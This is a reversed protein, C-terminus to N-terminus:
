NHLLANGNRCRDFTGHTGLALGLRRSVASNVEFLPLARRIDGGCKMSFTLRNNINLKNSFGQLRGAASSM